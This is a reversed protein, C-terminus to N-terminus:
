YIYLSIEIIKFESQNKLFIVSHFKLSYRNDFSIKIVNNSIQNIINNPLLHGNKIVEEM